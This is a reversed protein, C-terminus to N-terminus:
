GEGGGWRAPPPPKSELLNFLFSRVKRPDNAQRDMEGGLLFKPPYMSGDRTCDCMGEWSLVAAAGGGRGGGGLDFTAVERKGKTWWKKSAM